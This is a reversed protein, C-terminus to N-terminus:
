KRFERVNKNLIYYAGKNKGVLNIVGRDRLGKIIVAAEQPSLRCLKATESRTIKGNDAIFSIVMQEQQSRDFPNIFVPAFKDSMERYTGSSLRYKRARGNGHMDVIGSEVMAMILKKTASESLLVYEAVDSLSLGPDDRLAHIVLLETLNVRRGTREEHTMLFRVVGLDGQSIDVSVRVAEGSSLSYDPASRGSRLLSDFARNIGRGTREALGARLFAQALIPSRAHNAELMNIFNIGSPFGGPNSVKLEDQTISVQVMGLKTYDRHVLANVIIERTAVSSIRPIEVRLLGMDIESSSNYKEVQEGLYEAAKFLPYNHIENVVVKNEQLLQFAIEHSPIHMKLVDEKGFLLLAGRTIQPNDRVGQIVNLARGVEYDDMAEFPNNAESSSKSVLSRFREFEEHDLDSLTLSNDVIAAYDIEHRDIRSSLMEYAHYPVCGPQGKSDLSRRVYLGKTTGVIVDSKPVSVVLVPLKNIEVIEAEVMVTPNTLNMVMTVINHPNTSQGHRPALGTIEGDDEVGLFLLGGDGNSLCVVAEVIDNDNLGKARGTKFEVTFSEGTAVIDILEQPDM